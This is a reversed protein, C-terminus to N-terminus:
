NLVDLWQVSDSNIHKIEPKCETDFVPLNIGNIEIMCTVLGSPDCAATINQCNDSRKYTLENANNGNFAYASFAAMAVVVIKLISNAKM